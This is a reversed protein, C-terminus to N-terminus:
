PSTMEDYLNLYANTANHWSFNQKMARLQMERFLKKNQTLLLLARQMKVLLALPTPVNFVFGTAEKASTDYDIVTDLLGGVGRVLPLTGYAMSYMQNLGCPEFESPMLFIDSAAEVLHALQNDYAEIFVLKNAHLTALETLEAAINTDGTGVIVLQVDNLLFESLIPLLYQLGKQNTLRCVMGFMPLTHDVLKVKECLAQKAAAKGKLMSQNKARYKIPIFADIEPSWARYDCGNIIGSLANGKNLFADGMGQSGLDSCLEKAYTPSVAVVRDAHVVGAKLMSFINYGLECELHDRQLLEPMGQIESRACEGKFAANHVTLVSRTNIFQKAAAYRFKLLFPILGAHWDNCHIIDFTLQLKTVADLCAADFFLFRETNDAYGQHGATYIGDRNFYDAQEILLVPLSEDGLVLKRISYDIVQGDGMPLSTQLLMESEHQEAIQRYYPIIVTVQHGQRSLEDPLARAVDALGGTKVLGEIESSVFLVRHQHKAIM